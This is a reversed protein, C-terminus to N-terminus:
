WVPHISDRAAARVRGALRAVPARGLGHGFSIAQLDPSVARVVRLGGLAVDPSTVDVLAVRVGAAKLARRCAPLEALKEDRGRETIERLDITESGSRISDFASAREPPFYYFAHDLMQHVHSSDRPVRALGSRLLGRLYPGTQGLELIAQHLARTPDLHCGMGLTVGPWTEGDGLALALVTTGCVSTRLAHLEVTAGLAELGSLISTLPPALQDDIRIRTGSAGILWAAMLADREVLELTARLAADDVSTSTALGNSTGQCFLNEPGITLSLYAHLAPVWVPSADDLWHGRVWPHLVAPDFRAFPFGDREHQTDEYCPHQRPDLVDGTLDDVRAWRIRAPDPLSASYREVAEGVASQVAEWPTLGKGWGAPLARSRGDDGIIRPPAATIVIPISPEGGAGQDVQMAPIVGAVPDVWMELLDTSGAPPPGAPRPATSLRAAGGCIRCHPLPVVRHRTPGDPAGVVILQDLCPLEARGLELAGLAHALQRGMEDPVDREAPPRRDLNGREDGGPPVAADIRCRACHGCGVRGPVTLPGIRSRDSGVGVALVPVGSTQAWAALTTSDEGEDLDYVGLALVGPRLADDGPLGEFRAAVEGDPM